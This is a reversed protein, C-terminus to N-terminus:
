TFTLPHSCLEVFKNEEQPMSVIKNMEYSADYIMHLVLFFDWDLYFFFSVQYWSVEYVMNM